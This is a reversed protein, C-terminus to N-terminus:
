VQVPSVTLEKCTVNRGVEFNCLMFVLGFM